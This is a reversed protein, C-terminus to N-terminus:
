ANLEQYTSSSVRHDLTGETDISRRGPESSHTPIRQTGGEPLKINQYQLVVGSISIPPFADVGCPKSSPEPVNAEGFAGVDPQM